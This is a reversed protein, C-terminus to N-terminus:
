ALFGAPAAHRVYAFCPDVEADSLHHMQHLVITGDFGSAQLLSLYLPYDMLGEGAALHGAEGDHDLDKAHALAIDGGLLAFAQRLKDQMGPLEGAKFINAPDMVVKVSASGVEDILQRAKASTNVVNNVEPEFALTVGRREATSAAARMVAVLDTMAEPSDNDPHRRWMIDDRSGTCLTVVSTGLADCSEVLRQLHELNAWRRKQDPHIMNFTGDVAALAIGRKALQERIQHCLSPSLHQGLVDLGRRLSTQLPVSPVASGLQFQVAGIDHRVVADLTEELSPREFESTLVGLRAV